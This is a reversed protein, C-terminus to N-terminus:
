AADRRVRQREARRLKRQEDYTQGGWVGYKEFRGAERCEVRVPCSECVSKAGLVVQNGPEGPGAFFLDPGLGRCAARDHWEPRTFVLGRM